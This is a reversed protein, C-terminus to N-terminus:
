HEPNNLGATDINIDTNIHCTFMVIHILGPLYVSELFFELTSYNVGDRIYPLKECETWLFCILAM